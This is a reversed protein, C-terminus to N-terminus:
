PEQNQKAIIVKAPRLLSSNILYGTEIEELITDEEESSSRVSVVEHLNPDFKEGLAQIPKVGENKLFSQFQKHIAQFGTLIEDPDLQDKVWSTEAKQFSHAISLLKLLLKENAQKLLRAQEAQSRKRLNEYDALARLYRRHLKNYEDDKEELKEYLGKIEALLPESPREASEPTKQNSMTEAQEIQEDIDLYESESDDPTKTKKEVM